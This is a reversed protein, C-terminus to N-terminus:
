RRMTVLPNELDPEIQSAQWKGIKTQDFESATEHAAARAATDKTWV